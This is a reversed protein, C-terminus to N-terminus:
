RDQRSSAKAIRAGPRERTPPVLAAEVDVLAGREVEGGSEPLVVVLHQPEEVVGPDTEVVVDRLPRKAQHLQVVLDAPREAALVAGRGEGGDAAVDLSRSEITLISQVGEM